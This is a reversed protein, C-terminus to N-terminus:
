EELAALLTQAVNDWTIHAISEFGCEGMQKAKDKNSYLYDICEAIEKSNPSVAFGNQGQRIFKAPEGSDTCTIVPKKSKFAEHLIYGYDERVPVFATCLSNAYLRKMDTDSVYGLFEIRKDDGALGKLEQFFDGTGSIKLQVPSQVFKMAKVILDTRKWKHLRGPAYIYEDNECYFGSSTIGPHLPISDVGLYDKLRETVENGISFMKKVKPTSLLEQDMKFILKRKVENSRDQKIEDFMDYFVRITHMLYCVHNPHNIAFTPAKSSIVGDYSSLDLDYCTVYAKLIDEFTSESCPIEILKVYPVYHLFTQYLKQYFIEAGGKDGSMPVHAVIALSRIESM